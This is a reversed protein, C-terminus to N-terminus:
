WSWGINNELLLREVEIGQVNYTNNDAILFIKKFQYEKIVEPLLSIADKQILIKDIGVSHDKGCKCNLTKGLFDQIKFDNM